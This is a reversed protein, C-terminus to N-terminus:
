QKSANQHLQFIQARWSMNNSFILGLHKHTSVEDVSNESLKLVPHQTRERKLSFTMSKTKTGNMTVLWKSSWSAIVNLDNNLTAATLQPSSVEELLM